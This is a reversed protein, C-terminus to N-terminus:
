ETASILAALEEYQDQTIRNCLLYVDLKNQMNEKEFNGSLILKKCLKYIM